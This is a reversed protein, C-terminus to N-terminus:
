FQNESCNIEHKILWKIEEDNEVSDKIIQIISEIQEPKLLKFNIETDSKFDFTLRVTSKVKIKKVKIKKVVEPKVKKIKKIKEPQVKKIFPKKNKWYRAVTKAKYCTKCLKVPTCKYICYFNDIPYEVNCGKCTQLNTGNPCKGVKIIRVSENTVSEKTPCLLNNDKSITEM